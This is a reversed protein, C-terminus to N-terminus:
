PRCVKCPRLGMAKAEKVTHRYHTHHSVCYHRHYCEGTRTTYVYYTTKGTQAALVAPAVNAGVLDTAHLDVATPAQGVAFPSGLAVSAGTLMLLALLCVVILPKRIHM